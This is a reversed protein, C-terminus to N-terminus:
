QSPHINILYDCLCICITIRRIFYRTNKSYSLKEHRTTLFPKGSATISSSLDLAYPCKLQFKFSFSGILKANVFAVNSGLLSSRPTPTCAHPDTQMHLHVRASCTLSACPSAAACTCTLLVTAQVVTTITSIASIYQPTEFTCNVPNPSINSIPLSHDIFFELNELNHLETTPLILFPSNQVQHTQAESIDLHFYYDVPHLVIFNLM